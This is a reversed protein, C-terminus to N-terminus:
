FGCGTDGFSTDCYTRMIVVGGPDLAMSCLPDSYINWIQNLTTCNHALEKCTSGDPVKGTTCGYTPNSNAPILVYGTNAVFLCGECNGINESTKCCPNGAPVSEGGPPDAYVWLDSAWIGLAVLIAWIVKTNRVSLMANEKQM